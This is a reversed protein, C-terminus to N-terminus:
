SYRAMILPFNQNVITSTLAYTTPSSALYGNGSAGFLGYGGGVGSGSTVTPWGFIPWMSTSLAASFQVAVSSVFDVWYLTDATLALNLAFSFSGAAGQLATGASEWLLQDPYLNTDPTKNSYIAVKFNGTAISSQYLYFEALTAARASYMPQCYRRNATVTLASPGLAATGGALNIPYYRNEDIGPAGAVGSTGIRRFYGSYPAKVSPQQQAAPPFYPM